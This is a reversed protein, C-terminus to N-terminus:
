RQVPIEYVQGKEETNEPDDTNLFVVQVVKDDILDLETTKYHKGDADININHYHWITAVIKNTGKIRVDEAKAPEGLAEIIEQRGLKEVALVFAKEEVPLANDQQQEQAAKQPSGTKNAVDGTSSCATCLAFISVTILQKM